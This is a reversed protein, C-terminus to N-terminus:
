LIWIPLLFYLTQKKVNGKLNCILNNAEHATKEKARDELVELGLETFKHKLVKAIKGEYKTESDIQVLEIFENILRERKISFM